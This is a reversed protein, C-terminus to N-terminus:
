RLRNYTELLEKVREVSLFLEKELTKAFLEVLDKNEELMKKTKAYLKDILKVRFDPTYTYRRSGGYNRHTEEDIVSVMEEFGLLGNAALEEILMYISALDGRAGIHKNGLFVETAALGGLGTCIVKEADEYTCVKQENKHKFADSTDMIKRYQGSTDGFSQASLTGVEGKLIHGMVFHGAEHYCVSVDVEKTETKIGKNVIVQIPEYFDNMSVKKVGKRLSTILVENILSKLSACSFHSTLSALEDLSVESFIEDKTFLKLIDVRDEFTPTGIYVHKEIRGNRVLADPMSELTTNSTAIVLVAADGLNDIETLLARLSDRLKDSNDRYSRTQIIQDIEDIIIISPQNAKAKAFLAKFNAITEASSGNREEEFLSFCPVGSDHAIANAFMTKGNGPRGYFFIGRPLSAGKAKYKEFNLFFDVINSSEEKQFKYGGILDLHKM